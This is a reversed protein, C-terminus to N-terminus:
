DDLNETYLNYNYFHLNSNNTIDFGIFNLSFVKSTMFSFFLFLKSFMCTIDMAKFLM